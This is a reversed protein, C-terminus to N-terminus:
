AKSGPSLDSYSLFGGFFSVVTASLPRIECYQATRERFPAGACHAPRWPPAESGLRPQTSENQNEGRQEPVRHVERRARYPERLRRSRPLQLNSLATQASRGSAVEWGGKKRRGGRTVERGAPDGLSRWGGAGAAVRSHHRRTRREEPSKRPGVHRARSVGERSPARPGWPPPSPFTSTLNRSSPQQARPRAVTAPFSGSGRAPAGM